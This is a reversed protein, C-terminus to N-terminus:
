KKSFKLKWSLESHKVHFSSFNEVMIEILLISLFIHVIICQFYTDKIDFMLLMYMYKSVLSLWYKSTLHYRCLLEGNSITVLLHTAIYAEFSSWHCFYPFLYFTLNIWLKKKLQRVHWNIFFKQLQIDYLYVRRVIRTLNNKFPCHRAIKWM